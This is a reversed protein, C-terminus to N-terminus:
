SIGYDASLEFHRTPTTPSVKCMPRFNEIPILWCHSGHGLIAVTLLTLGEHCRGLAHKESHLFCACMIASFVQAALIMWDEWQLVRLIMLRVYFRLGVFITGIITTVAACIIIDVQYSRDTGGPVGLPGPGYGPPRSFPAITSNANNTADAM